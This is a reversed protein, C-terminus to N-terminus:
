NILSESLAFGRELARKLGGRRGVRHASLSRWDEIDSVEENDASSRPDELVERPGDEGALM